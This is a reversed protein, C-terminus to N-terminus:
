RYNKEKEETCFFCKADGQSSSQPLIILLKMLDTYEESLPFKPIMSQSFLNKFIKLMLNKETIM